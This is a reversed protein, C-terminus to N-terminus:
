QGGLDVRQQVIHGVSLVVKQEAGEPVGPRADPLGAAQGGLRKHQVAGPREHPDQRFLHAAPAPARGLVRHAQHGERIRAVHALHLAPKGGLPRLPAFREPARGVLGHAVPQLGRDPPGVLVPHKERDRHGRVGEPVGPHHVQKVVALRELDDLRQRPVLVRARDLHICSHKREVHRRRKGHREAPLAGLRGRHQSAQRGASLSM